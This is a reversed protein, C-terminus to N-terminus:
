LIPESLLHLLVDVLSFLLFRDKGLRLSLLQVRHAAQIKADRVFSRLPLLENLEATLLADVSSEFQLLHHESGLACGEDALPHHL